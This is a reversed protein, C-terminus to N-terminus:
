TSRAARSCWTTAGRTPRPPFLAKLAPPQTTAAELQTTALYSGGFMGVRGNSGPLGAAWQVSDYGDLAEDHPVAVGDSTYRGRTDQVVVIYGRAAIASFRKPAEEDNKSYPTRQLLVPYPGGARPRYVDARLVVGDRM